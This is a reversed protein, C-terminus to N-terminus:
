FGLGVYAQSVVNNPFSAALLHFGGFIVFVVLAILGAHIGGIHVHPLM